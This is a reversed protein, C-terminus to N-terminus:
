NSSCWKSSWYRRTGTEWIYYQAFAAIFYAFGFWSINLIHRVLLCLTLAIVLWFVLGGESKGMGLLSGSATALEGGTAVARVAATVAVVSNSSASNFMAGYPLCRRCRQSCYPLVFFLFYLVYRASIRILPTSEADLQIKASKIWPLCITKALVIKTTILSISLSLDHSFWEYFINMFDIM